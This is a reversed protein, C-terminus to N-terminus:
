NHSDHPNAIYVQLKTMGLICQALPSRELKKVMTKIARDRETDDISKLAAWRQIEKEPMGLQRGINTTTQIVKRSYGTLLDLRAEVGRAIANMENFSKSLAQRDTEEIRLQSEDDKTELSLRKNVM